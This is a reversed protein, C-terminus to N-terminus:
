GLRWAAILVPCELHPVPIKWLSFLVPEEMFARKEKFVHHRILLGFCLFLGRRYCFPCLLIEQVEFTCRSFKPFPPIVYCPCFVPISVAWASPDSPLLERDVIGTSPKVGVAKEGPVPLPSILFTKGEALLPNEVMCCVASLLVGGKTWLRNVEAKKKPVQNSGSKGVCHGWCVVVDSWPGWWVACQCFQLFWCYLFRPQQLMVVAFGEVWVPPLALPVAMLMLKKVVGYLSFGLARASRLM